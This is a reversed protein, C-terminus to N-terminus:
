YKKAVIEIRMIIAHRAYGDCMWFSEILHITLVYKAMVNDMEEPWPINIWSGTYRSISFWMKRDAIHWIKKFVHLEGQIITFLIIKNISEFLQFLNFPHVFACTTFCSTLYLVMSTQICLVYCRQVVM